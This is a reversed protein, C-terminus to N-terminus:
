NLPFFFQAVDEILGSNVYKGLGPIAPSEATNLHKFLLLELVNDWLVMELGKWKLYSHLSLKFIKHLVFSENLLAFM